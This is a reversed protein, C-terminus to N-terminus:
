QQFCYLRFTSSCVSLGDVSWESTLYQNRGAPGSYVGSSSTWNNCLEDSNTTYSAGSALTGTWVRQDSLSSGNEDMNIGHNLGALDDWNWAVVTGDVLIYPHGSQIFTDEVATTSDSLWALYTGAVSANDAADQCIADAGSLGGLSGNYVSSTVFIIKYFSECNINSPAIEGMRGYLICTAEWLDGIFTGSYGGVTDADLNGTIDSSDHTHAQATDLDEACVWIGSSYKLVQGDTCTPTDLKDGLQSKVDTISDANSQIGDANTTIDAANNTVETEVDEFNQNVESALAKQGGVFDHTVTLSGAWAPVTVLLGVVTLVLIRKM